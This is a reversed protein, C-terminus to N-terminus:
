LRLCVINTRVRRASVIRMGGGRREWGVRVEMWVSIELRYGFLIMTSTPRM